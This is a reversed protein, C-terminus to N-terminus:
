PNGTLCAVFVAAILAVLFSFSTIESEEAAASPQVETHQDDETAGGGILQLFVAMVQLASANSRSSSRIARLFKKAEVRQRQEEFEEKGVLEFCDEEVRMCLSHCLCKIRQSTLSEMMHDAPNTLTPVAHVHPM